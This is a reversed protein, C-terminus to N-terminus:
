NDKKIINIIQYIFGYLFGSMRSFARLAMTVFMYIKEKIEQSILAAYYFELVLFPVLLWLFLHIKIFGFVESILAILIGASLPVEAADKWFTYDDGKMMSPHDFYMKVRWFGHRFQEKLYKGVSTPHYHDVFSNKEFYIKQGAKIIKYSLDNDEGSAFRYRENFGGVLDFVKKRVGFNYSGFAKPYQPMRTRHRFLIEKHICRALISEPNAIGYSGAVVAIEPDQFHVLSKEIWDKQPICDSDTFFVIETAAEKAGRNRASAPGANKQYVYRVDSFSRITRATQDTSGDDVVIVRINKYTQNLVAQITQSITKECNYAPIVVSIPNSNM